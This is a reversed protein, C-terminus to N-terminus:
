VEVTDEEKPGAVPITLDGVIEDRLNPSQNFYWLLVNVIIRSEAVDRITLNENQALLRGQEKRLGAKVERNAQYSM